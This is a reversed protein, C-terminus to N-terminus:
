DPPDSALLPWFYAVSLAREASAGGWLWGAEWLHCPPLCECDFIRSWWGSSKSHAAVDRWYSVAASNNVPGIKVHPNPMATCMVKAGTPACTRSLPDNDGAASHRCYELMNSVGYDPQSSWYAYGWGPTPNTCGTGHWLDDVLSRNVAHSGPYHMAPLQITTVRTSRLGFPTDVPPAGASGLYSGWDREVAAWDVPLADGNTALGLSEPDAGLFDSFTVRHMLGLDVYQKQWAVRQARTINSPIDGLFRGTLINDIGCNFTTAYRSISPLAFSHVKISLPLEQQQQQEQQQKEQQQAHQQGTGSSTWNVGFKVTVSGSHTGPATENRVWVDVWFAQNAGNQVTIPFARRAQKDFPDVAPILADPWRGLAGACNSVVSINIYNERHVLAAGPGLAPFDVAIGRVIAPGEVVVQFSEYENRAASISSILVNAPVPVDPRIKTLGHTLSVTAPAARGVGTSSAVAASGCHSLQSLLAVALLTSM